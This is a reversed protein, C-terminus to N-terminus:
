KKPIVNDVSVPSYKGTYDRALVMYRFKDSLNSFRYEGNDNSWMDDICTMSSQEFLYVRRSSPQGDVTVVGKGTGAIFGDGRYKANKLAVSSGVSTILSPKREHRPLMRICSHSKALLSM